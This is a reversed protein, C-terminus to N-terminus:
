GLIAELPQAAPVRDPAGARRVIYAKELQALLVLTEAETLTPATTRLDGLDIAAGPSLNKVLALAPLYKEGVNLTTTRTDRFSYAILTIEATAHDADIREIGIASRGCRVYDLDPTPPQDPPPFRVVDRPDLRGIVEHLAAYDDALRTLTAADAADFRYAPQRWREDRSLETQLVGLIADLRTPAPIVFHVSLSDEHPVTEHWYGRPVYLVSGPVLEYTTANAPMETPPATRTYAHTEAPVANGPAWGDIPNPSFENPAIRWTKRGTLQITIVDSLDFHMSTLIGPRNCFLECSVLARPIGLAEAVSQEHDVFAPVKRTYITMGADYFTRAVRASVPAAVTRAEPGICWVFVESDRLALLDDVSGVGLTDIV